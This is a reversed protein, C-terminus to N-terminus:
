VECRVSGSLGGLVRGEGVSGGVKRGGGEDGDM